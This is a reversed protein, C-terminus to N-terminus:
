KYEKIYTEYKEKMVTDSFEIGAEERMKILTKTYLNEDSEDLESTLVEVISDKVDDLSPKEKQDTRYIVHYGYSTKVPEDTYSNEDLKELAELFATEFNANFAVYKLNEYTTSDKYEEKVEEFTKGENLKSIIEEALEKAEADTMDDDIAVLLHQTNIDGYVESEYYENIQEDTIQSELYDKYYLNRRYDLKLFDVFEDKSAFGNNALFTAEDMGYYQNYTDLYSQATKEVEENMEDTEEYKKDLIIRDVYDILYSISYVGKMEEYLFDATINEGDVTVVPQTGDKLTAIRDPWIIASILAVLLAGGIFGYIAHRNKEVFLMFADLKSSKKKNKVKEVKKEKKVEEIKSVETVQKKTEEKIAVSKKNSKKNNKQKEM